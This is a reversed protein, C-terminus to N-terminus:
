KTRTLNLVRIPCFGSVIPNLMKFLRLQLDHNLTVYSLDLIEMYVLTPLLQTITMDLNTQIPITSQFTVGYIDRSRQLINDIYPCDMLQTIGSLDVIITDQKNSIAEENNGEEGIVMTPRTVTAIVGQDNPKAIRCPITTQM